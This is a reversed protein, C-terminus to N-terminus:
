DNSFFFAAISVFMMLIGIFLLVHPESGSSWDMGYEEYMVICGAVVLVSGIAAWGMLVGEWIGPGKTFYTILAILIATLPIAIPLAIIYMYLIFLGVSFGLCGM